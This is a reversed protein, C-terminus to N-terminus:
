PGVEVGGQRGGGLHEALAEAQAAGERVGAVAGSSGLLAAGATALVVGLVVPVTVPEGFSAMAAVAPVIVQAAVVVPAVHSAPIGRLASMEATLALLGALAAAAIALAALGFRDVAIGDAGLKLGIAALSDGAAAGFLALRLPVRSRLAFPLVMLLGLPVTILVLALVSSVGNSREPSEIAVMVIGAILLASGGLELAGIREGLVRHSLVLLLVLGLALVPQVLTVPALALAVVHLAAGAISLATGALWRPRALLRRLLSARLAQERPAARAELAQLMYGSEYCGAAAIAPILGLTM